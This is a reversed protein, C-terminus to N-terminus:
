RRRVLSARIGNAKYFVTSSREVAAEFTMGHSVPTSFSLQLHYPHYTRGYEFLFIDPPFLTTGSEPGFGTGLDRTIGGDAQFRLSSRGLPTDIAAIARAERFERPTWYPTYAGTYSYTFATGSPTSSVSEVYFRNNTTDRFAASAGASFQLQKVKGIPVLAYGSVAWGRNDDSYRISRADAAALWGHERQRKWQLATARGYIHREIATATELMEYQEISASVAAHSTMRYTIGASGIPRSTGDPYRFLGLSSSAVLRLSPFTTENAIVVFPANAKVGQRSANMWWSGAQVDWRTLPDSFYSTSAIARLTRYPQDDDVADTAFRDIPRAASEIESLSRRATERNPDKRLIDEFERAATRYDGTWYAATAAGEAFDADAPRKLFETRASEYRQQWLLVRALGLNADRSTPDRQLALRYEAEAESFRKAWSLTEALLLHTRVSAPDSAAAARLDRIATDYDGSSRSAMARDLLHGADYIEQGITVTPILAGVFAIALLRRSVSSPLVTIILPRGVIVFTEPRSRRRLQLHAFLRCGLTGDRVSSENDSRYKACVNTENTGLVLIEPRQGRRLFFPRTMRTAPQEDDCVTHATM